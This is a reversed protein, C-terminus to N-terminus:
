SLGLSWGGCSVVSTVAIILLENQWIIHIEIRIGGRRLCRLLLLTTSVAM